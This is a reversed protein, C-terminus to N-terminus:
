LRQAYVICVMSTALIAAIDFGVVYLGAGAALTVAGTAVGCAILAKGGFVNARQWTADDRMTIPTRVGYLGNRKVKGLALPIGALTVLVPILVSAFHFQGGPM